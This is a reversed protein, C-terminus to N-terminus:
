RQSPVAALIARGRTGGLRAHALHWTPLTLRTAEALPHLRDRCLAAAPVRAGGDGLRFPANKM